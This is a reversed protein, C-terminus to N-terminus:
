FGMYARVRPEIRDPTWPPTWVLNMVVDTVGPLERLQQEAEGMIEPGSPCGPSTLSMDVRVTSGETQVDYILGLDVINLNLEPDKVRRLVLRAQDANVVASASGDVTADGVPAVDAVADAAPLEPNQEETM